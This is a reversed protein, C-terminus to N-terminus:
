SSCSCRIYRRRYHISVEELSSSCSTRRRSFSCSFRKCCKSAAQNDKEQNNEQNTKAHHQTTHTLKSKHVTHNITTNWKSGSERKGGVLARKPLSGHLGDECKSGDDSGSGSAGAGRKAPMPGKRQKKPRVFCGIATTFIILFCTM